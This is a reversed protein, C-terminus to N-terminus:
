KCSFTVLAQQTTQGVAGIRSCIIGYEFGSQLQNGPITILYCSYGYKKATYILYSEAETTKVGGVLSSEMFRVRRENKKVEFNMVRILGEPDENNNEVRIILRVDGGEGIINPSTKGKVTLYMNVGGAFAGAYPIFSAGKVKTSMGGYEKQLSVGTSDSTLYLAQGIFEPEEVCINQATCFLPILLGLLIILKRM